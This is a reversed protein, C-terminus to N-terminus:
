RAHYLSVAKGKWFWDRDRNSIDEDGGLGWTILEVWNLALIEDSCLFQGQRVMCYTNVNALVMSLCLGYNILSNRWILESLFVFVFGCCSWVTIYIISYYRNINRGRANDTFSTVFVEFTARDGVVFTKVSTSMNVMLSRQLRKVFSTIYWM